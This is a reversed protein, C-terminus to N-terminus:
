FHIFFTTAFAVVLSILILYTSHKFGDAVSDEGMKGAVMGMIWAQFFSATLLINTAQAVTSPSALYQQFAQSGGAGPISSPSVFYIMMATTIVVMIAGIYPIIIYPRIMSRKEKELQANKETFDALNIFMRPSGGGVDVVELLLFTMARTVWSKVSASFDQLVVRIPTGWSLQVSIKKVHKTLAGYKRNSLQEITKEPALGTKRIESIDRLFSSLKSEVAKKQKKYIENVIAAPGSTLALGVGLRYYPAWPIPAFFFAAAIPTCALFIYYPLNYTYPEKIQASNIVVIFILSIVPVLLGSFLIIQTPDINQTAGTGPTAFNSSGGMLNQTAFLVTFAIGMVVTSIIYAEAMSGLFEATSKTKIERYNFIDKLKSELYSQADGGTKLVAVYGGIFDSFTKNPNFRAAKELASVPDLGLIEIDLLIRRAEKASAPFIKDAAAVRKLTTFPSIGGGALTTIYGILYPLENDLAQSRSGSSIKPMAIGLGIPIFVILPIFPVGIALGFMWLLIAGVIAVPILLFSAFISIAILAEPSINMNSRLLNERMSPIKGSFVRAPGRTTKLALRLIKEGLPIKNTDDSKAKKKNKKFKKAKFNKKNKTSPESPKILQQQQKGSSQVTITEEVADVAPVAKTSSISSQSDVGEASSKKRAL